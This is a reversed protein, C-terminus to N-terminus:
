VQICVPLVKKYGDERDLYIGHDFYLLYCLTFEVIDSLCM